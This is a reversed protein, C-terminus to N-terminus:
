QQPWDRLTPEQMPQQNVQHRVEATAAYVQKRVRGVGGLPQHEPLVRWPNYSLNEDFQRREPTDFTQKPIKITAIKIWPSEAESWQVSPDEIPMSLPDTQLQVLFDFYADAQSLRQVLTERLFNDSQSSVISVESANAFHPKTSFKIAHPGLKYPVTSWYQEQLLDTAVLKRIVRIIAAQQPHSILYMVFFVALKLLMTPTKKVVKMTRTFELTDQANKLFFVPHNFLIFDQTQSHKSEELLTEGEIGLLKIAMGRADGESDAQIESSGNSFRIWAAYTHPQRFIGYRLNDPVSAVIFEAKLCGHSKPHQDRRAQNPQKDILEKSLKVIAQISATENEPITEQAIAVAKQPTTMIKGGLYIFILCSDNKGLSLFILNKEKPL